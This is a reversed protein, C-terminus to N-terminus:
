VHDKPNGRRPKHLILVSSIVWLLTLFFSYPIAAPTMDVDQLDGLIHFFNWSMSLALAYGMTVFVFAGVRTIIFAPKISPRKKPM